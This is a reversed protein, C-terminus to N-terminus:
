KISKGKSIRISAKEAVKILGDLWEPLVDDNNAKLDKITASLTQSNITFLEEFDHEKMAKYLEDKREPVAAPYEKRVLTFNFGKHNFNACENNIMFDILEAQYSEIEANVEKLKKELEEKEDRLEKIVEAVEFRKNEDM